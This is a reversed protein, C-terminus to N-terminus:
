LRLLLAVKLYDQWGALDRPLLLAAIFSTHNLFGMYLSCQLKLKIVKNIM